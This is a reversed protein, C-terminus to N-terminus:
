SKKRPDAGTARQASAGTARPQGAALKREWDLVLAAGGSVVLDFMGDDRTETHGYEPHGLVSVQVQPLAEGDADMVRGRIVALRRPEISNPDAGVQMANPGKYIWESADEIDTALTGDLPPAM